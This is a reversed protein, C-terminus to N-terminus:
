SISYRQKKESESTFQVNPHISNKENYVTRKQLLIRVLIMMYRKWYCLCSCLTPLVEELSLMFINLLLSDLPSGMDVSDSQLYFKMM